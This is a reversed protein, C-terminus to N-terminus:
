QWLGNRGVKLGACARGNANGLTAISLAIWTPIVEGPETPWFLPAIVHIMLMFLAAPWIFMFLIMWINYQPIEQTTGEQEINTTPEATSM